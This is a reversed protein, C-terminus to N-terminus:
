CIQLRTSAHTALVTGHDMYLLRSQIYISM